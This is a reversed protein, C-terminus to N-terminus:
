HMHVGDGLISAMSKPWLCGGGISLLSGRVFADVRGTLSVIFCFVNAGKMLRTSAKPRSWRSDLTSEALDDQTYVYRSISTMILKVATDTHCVRQFGGGIGGALTLAINQMPIKGEEGRVLV